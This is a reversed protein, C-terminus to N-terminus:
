IAFYKYIEDRDANLAKTLGETAAGAKDPHVILMIKKHAESVAQRSPREQTPLGLRGLAAAIHDPIARESSSARQRSRNRESSHGQSQKHNNGGEANWGPSCHANFCM